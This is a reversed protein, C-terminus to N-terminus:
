KCSGHWEREGGEDLLALAENFRFIHAVIEGCHGHNTRMLGDKAIRRVQEILERMKQNQEWAKKLESILDAIEPNLDWVSKGDSILRRKFEVEWKELKTM